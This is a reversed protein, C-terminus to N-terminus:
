AARVARGDVSLRINGARIEHQVLEALGGGGSFQVVLTTPGGGSVSGRPTDSLRQMAAMNHTPVITEGGHVVALQPAGKPGPVVGGTDFGLFGGVASAINGLGGTIKDWIMGGIDGLRGPISKIFGVIDGAKDAVFSAASGIGSKIKSGIMGGIDGIRGPLSKLFGAIESVRTGIWDKVATFGAKIKDWHSVIIAVAIGIPGTLIALILPWNDKIWNFASAAKEKIWDWAIGAANKVTDWHIVLLAIVAVLAVIIAIPVLMSLSLAGFASAVVGVITSLGGLIAALPGIAAVGMVAFMVVKQMGPSLTNFKELLGGAVGQLKEMIPKLNDGFKAAANETEAAMIRQQNASEGSTNAFDGAIGNTQDMLLALRAQAKQNDTLEAATDALGMEMAKADVAAASMGVGFQELPDSEGRLGANIAELATGVDTNFVSAMDAARQSLSVSQLAAEEQSFGLNKLMAGMPTVAERFARESLGMSSASTAAAKSIISAASGFVVNTANQAEALNSSAKQAAGLGAVIPLTAFMTASTGFNRLSTGARGFGAGAKEAASKTKDGFQGLKAGVGDVTRNLGAADGAFTLVVTNAM